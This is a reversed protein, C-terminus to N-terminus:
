MGNRPVKEDWDASHFLTEGDWCELHATLHFHTETATMETLTRIKISWGERGLRLEQDMTARANLPDPDISYIRDVTTGMVTGTEELRIDGSAAFFGGDVFIRHATLGSTTDTAYGREMSGKRVPMALAPTAPEPVPMTRPADAEDESYIPLILSSRGPALSLTVPAPSPWCIPWYTSSLHVVLRHMEPITYGTAHLKVTAETLADSELAGSTEHDDSHCLNLLGRSILTQTGDPAEDALVVAVFAQSQDSKVRLRLEPQGLIDTDSLLPLSRFSLAGGADIRCDGPLDGPNGFSCMDGGAAGYTQPSCVAMNPGDTEPKTGLAEDNLWLTRRTVAKSPWADLDVWRGDRFAPAPEPAASDQLYATFRPEEMVTGPKDGLWHDWWRLAEAVFDVQPGPRAEHPYLHAWPGMLVKCPGKLKEALRFATDRYLDGWGGIYYVPVTIADYDEGVSGHKWFDDRTQHQLWTSPWFSMAELRAKWISRWDREGVVAPDPPMAIQGLMVSGWWFNDNLLVGGSFHIDEGFRDDTGMVPIIARLAPPRRSAIQLAASAGWSKGFLGVNGNCWPQKAIWAILDCGDQIETELYEDHMIGDSDGTGRMDVRLAAYGAEAFRPHMTDDRLRTGDRRRYPIYEVIAPVPTDTEPRWIRAALRTGDPMPIWLTEEVSVDFVANPPPDTRDRPSM